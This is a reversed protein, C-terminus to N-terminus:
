VATDGTAITTQEKALRLLGCGLDSAPVDATGALEPQRGHFALEDLLERVRELVFRVGPPSAQDHHDKRRGPAYRSRVLFREQNM